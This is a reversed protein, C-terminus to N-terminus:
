KAAAAPPAVLRDLIADIANVVVDPKELQIYHSADVWRLESQPYHSVIEQLLAGRLTHFADSSLMQKREAALVIVPGAYVVDPFASMEAYAQFEASMSDNFLHTMVEIVRADRPAERHTRAFQNPHTPDVLVLGGVKSPYAAAYAQVYLGGFSHGVLIYPPPANLTRLLDDLEAAVTNPDRRLSSSLSSRGYGARSYSVSTARQAVRAAVEEWPSLGDGLGSEFVVVPSGQGLVAVEVAREGVQIVRAAPDKACASLVISVCIWALLRCTISQFASMLPM